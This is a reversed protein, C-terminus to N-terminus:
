RGWGGLGIILGGGWYPGWGGENSIPPPSTVIASSGNTQCQTTNPGVTVCEPAASVAPAAVIAYAGVAAFLSTLCRIYSRM